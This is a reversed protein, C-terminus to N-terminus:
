VSHISLNLQRCVVRAVDDNIYDDCVTGWMEDYCIEVRGDHEEERSGNVLRVDGNTCAGQSYLLTMFFYM